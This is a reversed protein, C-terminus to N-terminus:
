KEIYADYRGGMNVKSHRIIFDNYNTFNYKVIINQGSTDGSYDISTIRNNSGLNIYLDDTDRTINVSNNNCNKIKILIDKPFTHEPIETTCFSENGNPGLVRTGSKWWNNDPDQPFKIDYTVPHKTQDNVLSAIYQHGSYEHFKAFESSSMITEISCTVTAPNIIRYAAPVMSGLQYIKDREINCKINISLLRLDSINGYIGGSGTPLISNDFDLNYRAAVQVTDPPQDQPNQAPLENEDGSELWEKSSSELTVTESLKELNINYEVSSIVMGTCMLTQIPSGSAMNNTDNWIGLYLDSKRAGLDVLNKNNSDGNSGQTLLLYLPPKNDITKILTMEINQQQLSVDYTELSGLQSVPDLDFKTNLVISQLGQLKIKEGLKSGDSDIPEAAVAQVAYYIRKNKKKEEKTDTSKDEELM